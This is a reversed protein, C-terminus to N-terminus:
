IKSKLLNMREIVLDSLRERDSSRGVVSGIERKSINYIEMIRRIKEQNTRLAEGVSVVEGSLDNILQEVRRRIDRKGDSIVALLMTREGPKLGMKSLADKIQRECAVLALFRLSPDAIWGKKHELHILNAAAHLLVEESIVLNADFLQAVDGEGFNRKLLGLAADIKSVNCKFSAIVLKKGTSLPDLRFEKLWGSGQM